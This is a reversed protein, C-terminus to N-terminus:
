HDDERRPVFNHSDYALKRNAHVALPHSILLSDDFSRNLTLFPSLIVLLYEYYEQHSPFVVLSFMIEMSDLLLEHPNRQMEKM